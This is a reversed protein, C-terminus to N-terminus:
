AQRKLIVMDSGVVPSRAVLVGQPDTIELHVFDLEEARELMRTALKDQQLPQLSYWDDGVKITLGSGAFNVQIAQILGDAFRDSIETVQNEIAAILTQEPTLEVVPEPAPIVAVPEPAAPATLEAPTSNKATPVPPESPLPESIPAAIPPEAPLVNPTSIPEPSSEAPLIPTAIPEPSPLNVVETPKTTLFASSTWVLTAAVGAIIGTLATNSLKSSLNEPLLSRIKALTANWGTLLKDLFSPTTPAAPESELKAVLGELAEIAGRLVKIAQTRWVVQNSITQTTEQQSGEPEPVNPPQPKPPNHSM